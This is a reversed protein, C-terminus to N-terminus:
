AAGKTRGELARVQDMTAVTVHYPVSWVGVNGPCEVLAPLARVDELVCWWHGGSQRWLDRLAESCWPDPPGGDRVPPPRSICTTLTAVAVVRGALARYPEPHTPVSTDMAERVRLASDRIQDDRWDAGSAHLALLDGRRLQVGYANAFFVSRRRPITTCPVAFRAANRICWALVPAVSLGYLNRTM